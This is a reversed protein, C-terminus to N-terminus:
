NKHSCSHCSDIMKGAKGGLERDYDEQAVRTHQYALPEKSFDFPPRQGTPRWNLKPYVQPICIGIPFHVHDSPASGDLFFVSSCCCSDVFHQMGFLWAFTFKTPYAKPQLKCSQVKTGPHLECFQQLNGAAYRQQFPKYHITYGKNVWPSRSSDSQWPQWPTIRFWSWTWGTWSIAFDDNLSKTWM